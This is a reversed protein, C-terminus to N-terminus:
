ILLFELLQRKAQSFLVSLEFDDPRPRKQKIPLCFVIKGPSGAMVYVRDSLLVAENVDHTILLSPLDLEAMLHLYWSHMQRRTLPDLASFPEDLLAAQGGFLWTRLLAARQRMGGSLQSPYHDQTGALGFRPFHERARALAERRPLGALLYPIAVNELVTKYPLLLDKQQMYSIKGAKATIDEDNLWVRGDDPRSIGAILNFLTSKGVGSQGILAVIEGQGVELDINEIVPVGQYFKTIQETRLVVQGTM